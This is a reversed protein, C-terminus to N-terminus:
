LPGQQEMEASFQFLFQMHMMRGLKYTEWMYLMLFVSVLLNKILQQILLVSRFM